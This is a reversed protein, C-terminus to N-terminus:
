FELENMIYEIVKDTSSKYKDFTYTKAESIMKSMDDNENCLFVFNKGFFMKAIELQHDDVHESYKSLRPFVIVPKSANLAAIIGGVGGHTIVLSCEAVKEEFLDKDLFEVYLYNKPKYDSCGIQAFIDESIKGKDCLDDLLKLLRNLQFKQSGVTVFIM